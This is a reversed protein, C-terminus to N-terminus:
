RTGNMATTYMSPAVQTMAALASWSGAANAVIKESAKVPVAATPPKAPVVKMAASRKPTARPIKELSDPSPVPPM